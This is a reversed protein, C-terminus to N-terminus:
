IWCDGYSIAEGVSTDGNFNSLTYDEIDDSINIRAFELLSVMNFFSDGWDFTLRPCGM